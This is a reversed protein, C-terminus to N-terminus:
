GLGQGEAVKQRLRRIYRAAVAETYGGARFADNWQEPSLRALLSSIWRVDAPSASGAVHPERWGGQYHFRVRNGDVGEIFGEQEFGDVDNRTGPLMWTSKGLSAGLDKVVYVNRPEDGNAQIRYIANQSTKLDWNNVMVMFVFLGDFPRTGIFPNDRWSWEGVNKQSPPKLRFRGGPQVTARGDEHLTWRPLYYSPPQHYGVAWLLRAVVVETQSEPGLKVSWEQGQGDRVDYGPSFGTDDVDIVTYKDQAGPALARGGPGWLLDRRELDAPEEWIAATQRPSLTSGTGLACSASVSLLVVFSVLRATM